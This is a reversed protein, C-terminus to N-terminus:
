FAAYVRFNCATASSLDARDQELTRSQGNSAAQSSHVCLLDPLCEGIEEDIAIVQSYRRRRKRRGAVRGQQEGAGPHHGELRIKQALSLRRVVPQGRDLLAEARGIDVLDAVGRMQGHELHQAVKRQAVVELGLSLGPGPFQDRIHDANRRLTQHRGHEGVVVVGIVLPLPDAQRVRLDVAVALILAVEPCRSRGSGTTGARLQVVVHAGAIALVGTRGFRVLFPQLDPVEDEHLPRPELIARSGIKRGLADVGAGTELAPRHHQLILVVEVVSVQERRQQTVDPNAAIAVIVRGVVSFTPGHAHDRLVATRHREQNGVARNGAVLTAAIDQPTQDAARQVHGVREANLVIQKGIQRRLNPADHASPVRLQLLM